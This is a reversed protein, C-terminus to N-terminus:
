PEVDKHIFELVEEASDFRPDSEQPESSSDYGCDDANCIWHRTGSSTRRWVTVGDICVPTDSVTGLVDFVQERTADFAIEWSDLVTHLVKEKTDHILRQAYRSDWMLIGTQGYPEVDEAGEADYDKFRVRVGSPAHIPLCEVSYTRRWETMSFVNTPHYPWSDSPYVVINLFKQMFAPGGVELVEQLVSPIDVDQDALQFGVFSAPFWRHERNKFDFICVEVPQMPKLGFYEKAHEELYSFRNQRVAIWHQVEEEAKLYEALATDIREELPISM